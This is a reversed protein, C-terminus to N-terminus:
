GGFEAKDVVMRDIVGFLATSGDLNVLAVDFVCRRRETLAVVATVVVTDDVRSPKVHDVVVRVGVTTEGPELREAVAACTAAEVWAIGRPTALVDVDGSGLAVATDEPGVVFELTASDGVQIDSM